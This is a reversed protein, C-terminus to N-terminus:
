SAKATNLSQYLTEGNSFRAFEQLPNTHKAFVKQIKKVVIEREKNIWSAVWQSQKSNTKLYEKVSDPHLTGDDEQYEVGDDYYIGTNRIKISTIFDFNYGAYYGSSTFVNISLEVECNFSSWFGYINITGINKACVNLNVDIWSNNDQWSDKTSQKKNLLDQIDNAVCERIYDYEFEDFEEYNEGIAYFADAEKKGFNCTGM